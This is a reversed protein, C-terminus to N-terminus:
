RVLVTYASRMEEHMGCADDMENDKM